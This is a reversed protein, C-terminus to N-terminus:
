SLESGYAQFIVSSTSGYVRIVDTTALTAGITITISDNAPVAVDYAIYHANTIAAGAPSIAVRFTAGTGSINAVLITSVITSTSAPVTYLTTLSTGPASQGLVKYVIAASAKYPAFALFAILLGVFIKRLM